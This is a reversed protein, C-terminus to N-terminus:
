DDKSKGIFVGILIGPLSLIAAGILLPLMFEPIMIIMMGASTIGFILGIGAPIGFIMMFVVLMIRGFTGLKRKKREGM